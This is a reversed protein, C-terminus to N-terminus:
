PNEIRWFDIIQCHDIFQLYIKPLQSASTLQSRDLRNNMTANFDGLILIEFSGDLAVLYFFKQWFNSQVDHPAYVAIISLQQSGIM